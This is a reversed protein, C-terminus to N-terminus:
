GRHCIDNDRIGWYCHVAMALEDCQFIKEFFIILFNAGLRKTVVGKNHGFRKELLAM